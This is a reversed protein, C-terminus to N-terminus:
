RRGGALQNTESVAIRPCQRSIAGLPEYGCGYGHECYYDCLVTYAAEFKEDTSM